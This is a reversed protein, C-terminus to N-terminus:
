ISRSTRSSEPFEPDPKRHNGASAQNKEFDAPKSEWRRWQYASPIMESQDRTAFDSAFVQESVPAIEPTERKAVPLIVLKTPELDVKLKTIEDCLTSWEWSTYADIV